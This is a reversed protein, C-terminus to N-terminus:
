NKGKLYISPKKYIWKTDINQLSESHSIFLVSERGAAEFLNEAVLGITEKNFYILVNRCFILDFELLHPYTQQVLNFQEFRIKDKIKKSVRMWSSIDKTGLDFHAHYKEPIQDLRDKAYVGAKAKELVSTDIDTALIDFDLASKKFLEDLVLALTYPEEGSSSAACWVKLIKKKQKLWQPIFENQLIVFHDEERFWDTKNTTLLNIFCQWEDDGRPLNKLHLRYDQFRSFGLTLVRTRLRSQILERKMLTLSIGAYDYIAKQFFSFDEDNLQIQELHLSFVKEKEIKESKKLAHIVKLQSM